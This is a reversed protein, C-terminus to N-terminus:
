RVEFQGMMGVDEHELVHCHFMFIGAQTFPIILRVREGPALAVTDKWGQEGPEPARGNRDLVQFQVGHVHFTHRMNGMMGGGMMGGGMMGGGRMMGRGGMMGGGANTVTWVETDHLRVTADIRNMDMQRGNIAMAMGNTQLDFSRHVMGPREVFKPIDALKEPLKAPKQGAAQTRCILVNFEDSVLSLASGPQLHSFDITVEAREAPALDLQRVVNPTALLGGDSAIQTLPSDDSLRLHYIRASSANLIRFRVLTAPVEVSPEIAGNVLLTDGFMGTMIDMMNPRYRLQGGPLDRDQLILPIDDVGYQYPLQQSVPNDDDVIFMGALGMDILRATKEDPHPHYWLTAAPQGADFEATWTAGPQISQRPGGDDPGPLIVGHWHTTLTERLGNHVHLKVHQGSHVRVTPGLYAGNYGLTATPRGPVFTSEGREASLKFEATHPDASLNQALPPIPLTPQEAFAPCIGFGLLFLSLSVHKSLM